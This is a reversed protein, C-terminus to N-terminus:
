YPNRLANNAARETYCICTPFERAFLATRKLVFVRQLPTTCGVYLTIPIAYQMFAWGSHHIRRTTDIVDTNYKV